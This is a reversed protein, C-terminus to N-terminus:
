LGEKIDIVIGGLFDDSDMMDWDYVKLIIPFAFDDTYEIKFKM